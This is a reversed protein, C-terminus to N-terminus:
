KIEFYFIKDFDAWLYNKLNFKFKIKNVFNLSYKLMLCDNTFNLNALAGSKRQWRRRMMRYSKTSRSSYKASIAIPHALDKKRPCLERTVWWLRLPGKKSLKIIFSQTWNEPMSIKCIKCHSKRNMMVGSRRMPLKCSWIRRLWACWTRWWLKWRKSM